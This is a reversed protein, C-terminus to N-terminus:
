PKGMEIAKRKQKRRAALWYRLIERILYAASVRQEAAAEKIGQRIKAPLRFSTPYDTPLARRGATRGPTPQDPPILVTGGPRQTRCPLRM